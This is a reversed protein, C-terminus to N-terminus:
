MGPYLPFRDCLAQVKARVRAEVEANGAEIPGQKKKSSAYIAIMAIGGILAAGGIGFTWTEVGLGGDLTDDGGGGRIQDNGFGGTLHDDGDGGRLTAGAGPSTDIVTLTMGASMPEIPNAQGDDGFLTGGASLASGSYTFLTTSGAIVRDTDLDLILSTGEDISDDTLVVSEFRTVVDLTDLLGIVLEDDSDASGLVWGGGHYYLVVPHPGDVEPHFIFTKMEGDPTSLDLEREIV